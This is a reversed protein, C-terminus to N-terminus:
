LWTWKVIYREYLRPKRVKIKLRMRGDPLKQYLEKSLTIEKRSNFEFLRISTPRRSKPFEIEFQARQTRHNIEFEWFESKRTFGNLIKREIVFHDEDGKNRMGRLSIVITTKHGTKYFDVPKGLTTKYSSLIDGEGWALDEIALIRNQLYRITEEKQYTARKGKRDHLVLKMKVDLVEYLGEGSFGRMLKKGFKILEGLVEFLSLLASFASTIKTLLIM